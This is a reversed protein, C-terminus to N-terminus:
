GPQGSVRSIVSDALPEDFKLHVSYDDFGQYKVASVRGRRDISQLTGNNFGIDFWVRLRRGLLIGSVEPRPSKIM